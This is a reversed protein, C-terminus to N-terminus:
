ETPLIRLSGRCVPDRFQMQPLESTNFDPSRGRASVFHLLLLAQLGELKKGFTSRSFRTEFKINMKLEQIDYLDRLVAMLGM